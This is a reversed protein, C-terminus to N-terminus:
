VILVVSLAAHLTLKFFGTKRDIMACSLDNKVTRCMAACNQVIQISEMEGKIRVEPSRQVDERPYFFVRSWAQALGDLFPFLFLFASRSM